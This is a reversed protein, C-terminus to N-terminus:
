YLILGTNTVTNPEHIYSLGASTCLESVNIGCAEVPVIHKEPFRCPANPYTCIECLTCKGAGLVLFHNTKGSIDSQIAYAIRNFAANSALMGEFDFSDELTGVYQFAIASSFSQVREKLSQVDGCGPPCSWNTGYCGCHNMECSERLEPYFRIDSVKVPAAAYAGYGKLSQMIQEANLM